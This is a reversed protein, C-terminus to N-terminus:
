KGFMEDGHKMLKFYRIKLTDTILFALPAYAWVFTAYGWGIPNM